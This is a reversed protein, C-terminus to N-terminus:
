KIITANIKPKECGKDKVKIFDIPCKTICYELNDNDREFDDDCKPYCKDNHLILDDKCKPIKPVILKTEKDIKCIGNNCTFGDKPKDYCMENDLVKDPDDCVKNQTKYNINAINATKIEKNIKCRKGNCIFGDQPKPYCLDNQLVKNTDNCLSSTNSIKDANKSDKSKSCKTMTCSFGDKPKIYCLENELRRDDSCKKSVLGKRNGPKVNKSIRCHTANCTFGDRQPNYCMEDQLIRNPDACDRSVTGSRTGPKVNKSFSCITANCAFGNRAPNYCMEDQLIRNPDACDRSVNSTKTGPRVNKSISCNTANCNFGDHPPNYCMEDQLIRNPDACDRTVTGSRNGPRIDKSQSCITAACNFGDRPKKYCLGDQMYEDDKCVQRNWLPTELNGAKRCLCGIDTYGPNCNGCCKDRTCGLAGFCVGRVCCCGKGYSHEIGWCSTGDDRQNQGCPRKDPIRGVGRDYWCTTGSDNTGPPCKKGILLGGPTTWDWGEPPPDYCEVGRQVKGPPCSLRYPVGVGRDYWCTTGSDNTGPPCKKGILLGGPTTWDWGEPPPDFCEVGRQVKGPPCSLRYPVGVGRDYWCTTGSDNTGPPCKKGILLGGPTTWDWEEPPPEYCEVGRQVKGPPCSLRYPVGVGRDYWCTTGSDYTGQPCKKGILLGGPTTWDWGEPPAEYCEIGKQVTDPPCELKYPVGVGRDYNCENSNSNTGEPCKKGIQISDGIWEYDDPPNIFCEEGKQVTNVPCKDAPKGDESDYWCENGENNTGPPCKNSIQNGNASIWEWGDPPPEFCTDGRQVTNAPCKIIPKISNQRYWCTKDGSISYSPCKTEISEPSTVEWKDNPLNYCQNNIKIYGNDCQTEEKTIDDSVSKINQQQCYNNTIEGKWTPPCQKNCYLNSDKNKDYGPPCETKVNSQINTTININNKLKDFCKVPNDLCDKNKYGIYSGVIISFLIMICFIIGIIIILKTNVM